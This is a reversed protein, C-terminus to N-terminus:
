IVNVIGAVILISSLGILVDAAILAAKRDSYVALVICAHALSSLVSSASMAAYALCKLPNPDLASLIGFIVAVPLCCVVGASFTLLRMDRTPIQRMM